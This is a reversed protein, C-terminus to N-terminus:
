PRALVYAYEPGDDSPDPSDLEGAWVRRFGAKELVCKRITLPTVEDDVCLIISAVPARQAAPM